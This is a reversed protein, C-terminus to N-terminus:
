TTRIHLWAQFTGHQLESFQLRLSTAETAPRSGTCRQLSSLQLQLLCLNM